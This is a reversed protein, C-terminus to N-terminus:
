KNRRLHSETPLVLGKRAAVDFSKGGAPLKYIKVYDAFGKFRQPWPGMISPVDPFDSKAAVEAYDGKVKKTFEENMVIEGEGAVSLLRATLDIDKGYFDRADTAISVPYVDLCYAVAAKTAGFVGREKEQVLYCLGLFLTLAPKTNTLPTESIYFMLADGMVKLPRDFSALYSQALTLTNITQSLWERRELDKLATSDVIDVLVCYGTVPELSAIKNQIDGDSPDLRM